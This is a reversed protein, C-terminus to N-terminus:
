LQRIRVVVVVVVPLVSNTNKYNIIGNSIDANSRKVAEDGM